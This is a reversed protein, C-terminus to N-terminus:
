LHYHVGGPTNWQKSAYRPLLLIPAPLPSSNPSEDKLLGTRARTLAPDGVGTVCSCRRKLHWGFANAQRHQSLQHSEDAHRSISVTVVATPEHLGAHFRFQLVSERWIDMAGGGPNIRASPHHHRRRLHHAPHPPCSTNKTVSDFPPSYKNQQSPVPTEVRITSFQFFISPSGQASIDVSSGTEIKSTILGIAFISEHSTSGVSVRHISALWIGAM